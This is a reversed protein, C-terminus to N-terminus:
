RLVAFALGAQMLAPVYLPSRWGLPWMSLAALLVFAQAAYTLATVM